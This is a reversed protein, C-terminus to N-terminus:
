IRDFIVAWDKMKRIPINDFSDATLKWAWNVGTGAPTNMRADEPLNLWDQMPIIATDCVSSFAARILTKCINKKNVKIGMYKKLNKFTIKDADNQLWGLTTNNDHTGTYVFNNPAHHHPAYGSKAIDHGFAFQLVKMGPLCFQDKLAYVPEDIEGLDEAVFPLDTFTKKITSFFDSGPGDLWKGNIATEEDAPVDWYASFARFHDLRLTDYWQLNKAIRDIWWKYGQEKLKQWNYVPTGWRQGNQNFYDPPVGSVSVMKLNEDLNFIGPNAWVDASDYSVYFPLDGLIKIDLKNCYERLKLWQRTFIFQLWKVKEIKVAEDKIIKTLAANDRYRYHDPWTHWPAQNYLEKLVSYLAFDDLWYNENKCFSRFGNELLEPPHARYVEWAMDLLQDKAQQVREFEVLDIDQQAHQRLDNATLLGDEALVEPSILLVNGAQSSTSSYPSYADAASVANLPLIQWYRQCGKKLIHAFEKAAPGFDGLGFKSPLSTIHLLVGASRKNTSKGLYLVAVPLEDLVNQIQTKGSLVSTKGTLINKASVPAEYPIHIYTHSWDTQPRIPVITVVWEEDYTRAFAIAGEAHKGSVTLPLYDGKEFLQPLASRLKLLKQLLWSKSQGDVEKEQFNKFNKLNKGLFQLRKKYDVPRRNDPDVMSLDWLECGQYIDPVGPCTLKLTVQGLSNIVGLESVKQHFCAFSKWFSRSTDLLSSVFAKVGNEYEENPEAWNSHRKAERLTKELYEQLRTTFDGNNEGPMPYTGILTQYIFYEDNKDPAGKQKIDANLGQWETIKSLWEDSLATLVNLRARVDEGRKTDHTSTANLALPWQLQRQLMLTHFEDVPLGFVDPSDGVENHDIFRNYTYMLTDEVGKAMLPGSFQMCRQYFKLARQNYDDGVDQKFLQVPNSTAEQLIQDVQEMEGRSLPWGNGYFRYVPFNILLQAIAQKVAERDQQEGLNLTLYFKTLNELEGNMHTTLILKKKERIQEHVSKNKGTLDQYFRTFAKESKRNTFLNNVQALFDYGTTGQIPWAPLQEGPELIKEVVIYTEDGALKRLRQLYQEPDYLGDIHDIRLGQIIDDKLLTAILRHFHDFVEPHQINICILGNVTFFRRFNITQDTEKWSCLRYYQQDAIAKIKDTTLKELDTVALGASSAANLPWKQDAYSFYMSKEEAILKLQGNTIVTDLDDGLFPVMIPGEFFSGDALSQDFYNRYPSSPGNKLLDMLWKNHHHFAMHNPVIDQLWSIGLQKLKVSIARLQELTGIEPNITLPDVGDYGHTSGPVASFIPSAYITKIGLEALYPLIEELHIFTFDKHFQIRYTSVPNFM